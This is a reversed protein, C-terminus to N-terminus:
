LDIEDAKACRWSKLKYSPHQLGWGVVAFTGSRQCQLLSSANVPWRFKQCTGDKACADIVVIFKGGGTMSVPSAGPIPSVGLLAIALAATIM